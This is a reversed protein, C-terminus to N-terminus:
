LVFSVQIMRSLLILIRCANLLLYIFLGGATGCFDETTSNVIADVAFNTICTDGLCLSVLQNIYSDPRISINSDAFIMIYDTSKDYMRTRAYM